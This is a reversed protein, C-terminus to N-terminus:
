LHKSRRQSLEGFGGATYLAACSLSGREPEPPKESYKTPAKMWKIFPTERRPEFGARHRHLTKKVLSLIPWSIGSSGARRSLASTGGEAEVPGSFFISADGGTRFVWAWSICSFAPLRPCDSVYCSFFLGTSTCRFPTFMVPKIQVTALQGRPLTGETLELQQGNSRLPAPAHLV